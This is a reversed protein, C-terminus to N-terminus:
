MKKNKFEKIEIDRYFFCDLLFIGIGYFHINEIDSRYPLM